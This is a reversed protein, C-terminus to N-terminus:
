VSPPIARGRIVCLLSSVSVTSMDDWFRGMALPQTMLGVWIRTSKGSTHAHRCPTDATPPGARYPWRPSSLPGAMHWHPCAVIASMPSSRLLRRIECATAAAPDCTAYVRAALAAMARLGGLVFAWRWGLTLAVTPVAAGALLTSVPIAAQKVGFSLGQRGAPVQGARLIRHTRGLNGTDYGGTEQSGWWLRPPADLPTVRDRQPGLVSM